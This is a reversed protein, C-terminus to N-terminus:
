AASCAAAPGAKAQRSGTANGPPPLRIRASPWFALYDRISAAFQEVHLMKPASSAPLPLNALKGSLRLMSAARRSEQQNLTAEASFQEVHFLKTPRSLDADPKGSSIPVSAELILVWAAGKGYAAPLKLNGSQEVHLLKRTSSGRPVASQKERGRTEDIPARWTVQQIDSRPLFTGRPVNKRAKRRTRGPSRAGPNPEVHLM